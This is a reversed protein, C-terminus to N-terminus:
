STCNGAMYINYISCTRGFSDNRGSIWPTTNRRHSFTHRVRAKNSTRPGSAMSGSTLVNTRRPNFLILHIFQQGPIHRWISRKLLIGPVHYLSVNWRRTWSGSLPIRRLNNGCHVSEWSLVTTNTDHIKISFHGANSRLKSKQLSWFIQSFGFLLSMNASMCSRLGEFYSCHPLYGSM